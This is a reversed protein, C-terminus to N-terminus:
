YNSTYYTLFFGPEGGSDTEFLAANELGNAMAPLAKSNDSFRIEM